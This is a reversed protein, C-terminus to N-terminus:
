PAMGTLFRSELIPEVPLSHHAIIGREGLEGRKLLDILNAAYGVAVRTLANFRGAQFSPSLRRFILREVSEVESRGRATIFFMVVDEEVVPLGNCLLSKLMDRRKRLGLDDLLFRMYDLHGPHRITKFTLGRVPVACSAFDDTMGGSTVFAEYAMGDVVFREYDELPDLMVKKGDRLAPSPLLYEDFLGDMNWIRGYGLRNVPHQPIAGVRITLEEIESFQSVLDMALTEVLGPSAGCGTLVARHESLGALAARTEPAPRSFDLYHTGIEAALRVTEPVTRDPVAAVVLDHGAAMSRLDGPLYGSRFTADIGSRRAADLAEDTSDALTVAMEPLTTLAGALATGINGAGFIFTRFPAM